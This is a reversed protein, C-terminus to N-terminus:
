LRTVEVRAPEIGFRRRGRRVEVISAAGEIGADALQKRARYIAVNLANTDLAVMRQLSDRDLWGQESLPLGADQLRARALTLLVYGHERPELTIRRGRHMATIQVHEEDRSVAFHIQLADIRPGSEVTATGEEAHPLRVEWAVGDVMLQHGDEVVRPECGEEEALWRGASDPYVTARPHSADPIALLDGEGVLVRGHLGVALAAPPGADVLVFRASADGFTLVDGAALPRAQGPEVREDGVFTGNRSGLDRL